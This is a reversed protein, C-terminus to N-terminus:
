HPRPPIDEESRKHPQQNDAPTEDTTRRTENEQDKEIIESSSCRDSIHFFPSSDSSTSM